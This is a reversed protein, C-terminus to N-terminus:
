CRDVQNLNQALLKLANFCSAKINDKRDGNFLFHFSSTEAGTSLGIFVTGVPKQPTGGDPGAIGTVSLAIDSCFAERAGQAMEKATKSSVAGYRALTEEKVGLLKVKLANSYAVAGGLYYGSSGALSTIYSSLLGGTCSEALSLTLKRRLFATHVSLLIKEKDL